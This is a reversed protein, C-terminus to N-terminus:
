ATVPAIFTPIAALAKVFELSEKFIVSVDERGKVPRATYKSGEVTISGNSEIYKALNNFGALTAEDWDYHSFKKEGDANVSYKAMPTCYEANAKRTSKNFEGSLATLATEVSQLVNPTQANEM